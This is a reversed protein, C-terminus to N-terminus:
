CILVEYFYTITEFLQFLPDMKISANIQDIYNSQPVVTSLQKWDGGMLITKGGFPETKKEDELEIDKFLKNAYNFADRHLM